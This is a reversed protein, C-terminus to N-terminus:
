FSTLGNLFASPSHPNSSDSISIIGVIVLYFTLEVLSILFKGNTLWLDDIDYTCKYLTWGNCVTCVTYSIPVIGELLFLSAKRILLSFLLSYEPVSIEM